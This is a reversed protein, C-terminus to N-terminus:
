RMRLNVTKSRMTLALLILVSARDTSFHQSWNIKDAIQYLDDATEGKGSRIELLVRNALRSWLCIRYADALEAELLVQGPRIRSSVEPLLHQIEQQLLQELGKSTSILFAFM